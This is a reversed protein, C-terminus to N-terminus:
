KADSTEKATGWRVRPDCVVPGWFIVDPAQPAPRAGLNADTKLVVQALAYRRSVLNGGFFRAPRQAEPSNVAYVRGGGSVPM